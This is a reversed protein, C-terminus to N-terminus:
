LDVDPVLVHLHDAIVRFLDADLRRQKVGGLRDVDLRLLATEAGLIGGGHAGHEFVHRLELAALALACLAEGGSENMRQPPRGQAPWKREALDRGVLFSPLRQMAANCSRVSSRSPMRMSQFTGISTSSPRMRRASTKRGIFSPLNGTM